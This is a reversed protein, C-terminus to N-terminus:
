YLRKDIKGDPLMMDSHPKGEEEMQFRVCHTWDGKCCTEIWYKDLKGEEYFRKMPCVQYWKCEQMKREKLEAMDKKYIYLNDCKEIFGMRTFNSNSFIFFDFM